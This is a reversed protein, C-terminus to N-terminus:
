GDIWGASMDIVVMECDFVSSSCVWTSCDCWAPSDVTVMKVHKGNGDCIRELLPFDAKKGEPGSQSRLFPVM